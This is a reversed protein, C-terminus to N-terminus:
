RDGLGVMERIDQPKLGDERYKRIARSDDRKALRKGNEDLILRHHRYIPTPLGLLAQLVRHIQTAEFLDQGRTVHTVNQAADDVVVALHYAVGTDRRALVIDGCESLLRDANLFHECNGDSIDTFSLHNVGDGGGLLEIAKAMNLRIATDKTDALKKDRCTGPYVLGDPGYTPLSQAMKIVSRTCECAYTLGSHNLFNLATQYSEVNDSQRLVPSPWNLGLWHLDDYIAQEYEPRVRTRDTDEIRLLFTGGTTQAQKWATLASFAHGLHLYGTPSPAFREIHAM